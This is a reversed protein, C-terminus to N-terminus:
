VDGHLEVRRPIGADGGSIHVVATMVSTADFAQGDVLARESAGVHPRVGDLQGDGVVVVVHGRAVGDHRHNIAHQRRCQALVDGHLQIGAAVGADGGGVHVVAATVSAPDLAQGDVLVSESAGAHPGIALVDGVF